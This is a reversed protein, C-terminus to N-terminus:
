APQRQRSLDRHHYARGDARHKGRQLLKGDGDRVSVIYWYDGIPDPTILDESGQTVAAWYEATPEAFGAGSATLSIQCADASVLAEATVAEGEYSGTGTMRITEAQQPVQVANGVPLPEDTRLATATM